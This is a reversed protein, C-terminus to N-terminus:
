IVEELYTLRVQMQYRASGSDADLVYGATLVEIRCAERGDLDPLVGRDDNARLWRELAEYFAMNATNETVDAGYTERSAFVFLFQKMASGDTYQRLVPDCPVAEVTYGTPESGLYDVGFLGDRLGPFGCLYTRVDEIIPRM